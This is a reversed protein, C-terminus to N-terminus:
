LCAGEGLASEKKQQMATRELYEEEEEKWLKMTDMESKQELNM